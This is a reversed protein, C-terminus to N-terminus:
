FHGKVMSNITKENVKTSLTPIGHKSVKAKGKGMEFIGMTYIGKWQSNRPLLSYVRFTM